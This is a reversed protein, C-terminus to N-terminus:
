LLCRVKLVLSAHKSGWRHLILGIFTLQETSAHLSLLFGLRQVNKSEISPATDYGSFTVLLILLITVLHHAILSPGTRIRYSLEFVYLTTILLFSIRLDTYDVVSGIRDKVLLQSGFALTIGLVISTVIIQWIYTIVNRQKVADM